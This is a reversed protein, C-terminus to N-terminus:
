ITAPVTPVDRGQPSQDQRLCRPLVPCMRELCHIVSFGDHDMAQEMVELVHNPLHLPAPSSRPGAAPTEEDPQDTISAGRRSRDQLSASRPPPRTETRPRAASRLQGHARLDDRHEKRAAHDLHNGRHFVTATAVSCSSMCSPGAWRQRRRRFPVPAGM